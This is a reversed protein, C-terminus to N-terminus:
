IKEEAIAKRDNLNGIYRQCRYEYYSKCEAKCYEALRRIEGEDNKGM